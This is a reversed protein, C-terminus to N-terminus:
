QLLSWGLSWCTINHELQAAFAFMSSHGAGRLNANAIIAWKSVKDHEGYHFHCYALWELLKVDGKNGHRRANSSM